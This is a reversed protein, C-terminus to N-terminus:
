CADDMQNMLHAEQILQGKMQEDIVNVKFINLSLLCEIYVLNINNIDFLPYKLKIDNFTGSLAFIKILVDDPNFSKGSCLQKKKIYMHILTYLVSRLATGGSLLPFQTKDIFDCHSIFLHFANSCSVPTHIGTLQDYHRVFEKMNIQCDFGDKYQEFSM